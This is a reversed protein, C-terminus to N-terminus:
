LNLGEPLMEIISEDFVLRKVHFAIVPTRVNLDIGRISGKQSSQGIAGDGGQARFGPFSQSPSDDGMPLPHHCVFVKCLESVSSQRIFNGRFIRCYGNLESIFGPILNDPIMPDYMPQRVGFVRLEM